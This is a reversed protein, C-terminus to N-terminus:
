KGCTQPLCLFLMSVRVMHKQVDRRGELFVKIKDDAKEENVGVEMLRNIMLRLLDQPM